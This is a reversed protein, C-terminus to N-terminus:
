ASRPTPASPPAIALGIAILGWNGMGDLLLTTVVAVAM